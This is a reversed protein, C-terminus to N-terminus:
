GIQRVPSVVLQESQLIMESLAISLTGNRQYRPM